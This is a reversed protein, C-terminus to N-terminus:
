LTRVDVWHVRGTRRKVEAYMQATGGPGDGDHGNWLTFFRVRDIGWALATNLLWLNCRVYANAGSPLPGLEVPM